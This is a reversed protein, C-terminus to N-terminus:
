ITSFRYSIGFSLIEKLQWKHWRNDAQRPTQSDYRGHVFIQTSLYRNFQFNFTNEWDGQLGDYDTFVFLRSTYTLNHAIKWTLKAEGSSGYQSVSTRGSKIGYATVDMLDNTCTKLNYSLPSISANFSLTKKKNAYEYTMGVGLNLEAPSLFAAKLDYTNTKYSNFIQTKFMGNVSYFWHKAAKVGFKSTIQLLDESISYDRLEDDPADNMGLKYQFTSEFLLNPHFAPNLKVDYILNLIMNLNNNGGQYWNPSIYAQSFQLSGRFDRLWNRRDIEVSGVEDILNAKDIKIEKIIIKNKSPDIVARFEKPPEPLWLSNYKVQSPNAIMYNQKLEFLQRNLAIADDVWKTHPSSPQKNELTKLDFPNEEVIIEYHDFVAPMYFHNPIRMNSVDITTDIELKPPPLEALPPLTDVAAIPKAISDQSHTSSNTAGLTFAFAIVALTATLRIKDTYTYNKLTM